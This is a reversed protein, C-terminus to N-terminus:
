KAFTFADRIDAKFARYSKLSMATFDGLDNVPAGDKRTMGTFPFVDTKVGWATLTKVWRLVAGDGASDAHPFIRVRKGTFYRRYSEPIEVNSGGLCVPTVSSHGGLVYLCHWAALYDGEGEVLAIGPKDITETLGIPHGNISGPLNRSKAPSSGGWPKGDLRRAKANLRSSDTVVFAVRGWCIAKFLNGADAALRMAQVDLGRIEAIRACDNWTAPILRGQWERRKSEAEADYDPKPPSPKRPSRPISPAVSGRGAIGDYLRAIADGNSIGQAAAFIAIADLRDGTSRDVLVDNHLECSPNADARFPSQFKGKARYEIGLYDLMTEADPFRAKIATVKDPKPCNM